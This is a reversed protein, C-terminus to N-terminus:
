LISLLHAPNALDACKRSVCPKLGFSNLVLVSGTVSYDCFLPNQGVRCNLFM